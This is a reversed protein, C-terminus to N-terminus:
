HSAAASTPFPLPPPAPLDFVQITGNALVAVRRGSPSIAMNGGAAFVPKATATLELQGDAADLVEVLQGKIDDADLPAFQTVPHNVALTERVLRSGNAAVALLPWVPVGSPYAEWLRRGDTSLAVLDRAGSHTCTAALLEQQSLFDVTPACASDVKGLLSSGGGFRNLNLVWDEGNGRLSEVYGDTNIPLHVTSRVRSVLMVQGSDRRLIRVVMEPKGLDYQEEVSMSASATAPSSVTGPKPQAAVPERSSTVLYQEAPDTELWQVPGPFHLYPKLDMNKDGIELRDRDRFLFHGDKLVWVYRSRDHVSWIAESEVAGTAITLVLARIHREDSQDSQANERRILGPVRFTFLLRDEDLFDLSALAVRQGTYLAGPATFGLPEVPITFAPPLSPKDVLREPLVHAKVKRPPEEAFPNVGQSLTPAAASVLAAATALRLCIGRWRLGLFFRM